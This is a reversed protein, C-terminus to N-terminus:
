SKPWGLDFFFETSWSTLLYLATIGILYDSYVSTVSQNWLNKPTKKANICPVSEESHQYLWNSDLTIVQCSISHTGDVKLFLAPSFPMMGFVFCNACGNLLGYNNLLPLSMFNYANFFSRSSFLDFRSFGRLGLGLGPEGVWKSKLKSDAAKDDGHSVAVLAFLVTVLQVLSHM